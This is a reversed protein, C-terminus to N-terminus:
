IKGQGTKFFRKLGQARQPDGLLRLRGQIERITEQFKEKQAAMIKKGRVQAKNLAYTLSTLIV